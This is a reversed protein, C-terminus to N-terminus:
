KSKIYTLKNFKYDELDISYEKHNKKESELSFGLKDYFKEAQSNKNTKIFIAKLKDINPSTLSKILEDFFALEINRGLVRCSLMLSDIESMDNKENNIIALGTLGYDGYSDKLSSIVVEYKNSETMKLIESETYRKTTLNFQNIKQSLQAAREVKTTDNWFLELELGLSELYGEISEFSDKKNKREREELYMKTKLADEKSYSTKYFYSQLNYLEKPYQTLNEPVLLTEVMSLTDKVLGIEFKSDDVFVLSDIGLNLEKSIEKLNSAKDNWNVKKIIFDENKLIFDPHNNLVNDVDKLNNKSCIALLVGQNKFSLLIQQVEHFIKGPFTERNMKIGMFGDEGLIGGWLTNDCDMVLVKKGKGKVSLFIPLVEKVYSIYFDNSYLSKSTYFKRYDVSKFLGLKAILFDTNILFTNKQKVVELHENLNKSVKSLNGELLSNNHSLISPFKNFIVLSTKSLNKSVLEIENKVKSQIQSLKEKSIILQESHLGDILNITEWFIIVADYNSYKISEQVINDYDAIDVQVNIKNDRLYFELIEKIEFVTVNSLIAINYSAGVITKKLELNKKIIDFYKM